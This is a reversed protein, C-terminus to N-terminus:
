VTARRTARVVFQRNGPLTGTLTFTVPRNTCSAGGNVDVCTVWVAAAGGPAAANDAGLVPAVTASQTGSASCASRTLTKTTGSGVLAYSVSYNLPAGGNIPTESWSFSIVNTGTGCAPTASTARDSVTAASQADKAFFTSTFLPSRQENIRQESDTIARVGFVFAASLPVIIIGLLIIAIILEVLTFGAEGRFRSPGYDTM